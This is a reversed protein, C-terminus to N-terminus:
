KRVKAYEGAYQRATVRLYETGHPTISWGDQEVKSVLNLRELGEFCRRAHSLKKFRKPALKLLMQPTAAKGRKMQTYRLTTASIGSNDFLLKM